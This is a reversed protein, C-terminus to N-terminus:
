RDFRLEMGRSERDLTGNEYVMRGNVFTHTVRTTFREEFFPSWKCKYLITDSLVEWGEFLDVLVLDAYYGPRIFGRDRIGFRIAPAHCMKEVIVPLTVDGQKYLELMVNLSHQVLPGGSPCQLYPRNKEELTHPAHDTAVVDVKGNDLGKQLADRDAETKIAPNWKILNGKRRYDHDSFYLHHVCVENTIKKDKLEGSGFLELERATSLHLVHLDAGYRDALEVAKATSVFCAEESRILPHLSPHIDEGYLHQYYALNKRIISEEECHTAVLIPSEAFVASLSDSRDVMMDGTSSGMFLKIGCVRKPDANRIEDINDNTAGLYFSYNAMSHEAAIEFKQELLERTTTQPVTNPMEMYSTVGGAVAAASETAIDAKYTLGPERFHVQDDIVGPMLLKEGADIVRGPRPGPYAVDGTELTREGESVVYGNYSRRENVIWANEILIKGM